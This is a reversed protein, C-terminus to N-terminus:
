KMYSLHTKVMEIIKEESMGPQLKKAWSRGPHLIDWNPKKGSIRGSGPDHNGFGEVTVNWLPKFMEILLSEGLPIWIDDVTLYRCSFDDIKLNDVQKISTAHEDLRSFLVRGVNDSFFGGKRAGRPVAKGIYIPQSFNGNRNAKSIPKYLEFDGIYYIAYIGAGEFPQPPIPEATRNLLMEAVNKALNRKDLPNYPETTNM